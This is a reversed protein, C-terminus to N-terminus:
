TMLLLKRVLSVMKRSWASELSGNTEWCVTGLYALHFSSWWIQCRIGSGDHWQSSLCRVARDMDGPHGNDQDRPHGWSSPIPFVTSVCRIRPGYTSSSRGSAGRLIGERTHRRAFPNRQEVEKEIATRQTSVLFAPWRCPWTVPTLPTLRTHVAISAGWNGDDSKRSVQVPVTM